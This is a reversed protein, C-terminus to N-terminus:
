TIQSSIAQPNIGFGVFLYIFGDFIHWVKWLFIIWASYVKRLVSQSEVSM